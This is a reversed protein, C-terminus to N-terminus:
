SAIHQQSFTKDEGIKKHPNFINEPDFIQKAEKFLSYVEEGYMEPLYPTRLLGDNHEGTNSGHFSWVLQYVKESLEEITPKFTPDTPDMLPIIHFNGDGMHGAITYTLPYQDLIANLKPLFEPLVEPKVVLDDIFPATRLKGLRQRLLAFSERRVVWYKDADAKSTTIRTKLYFSAIAEQGARAKAAVEEENKGTYEVMLILKPVGGTLVAFFEPLLRFGLTFLNGGLRKLLQPFLKLAIRFTHDDYSEMSEPETERLTTVLDGLLKTDKLFIVLLKSAQEPQVLGFTTETIIGLTGQSGVILRTPDFTDQEKDWVDWLAYGSSNKSVDPKAKQLVEYNDVVLRELKQYLKGEFDGQAKKAELESRSFKKFVYEKGDSLVMKLSRVYDATKGWRLTKEGGSNNAVMGGVTCLERSAPYSPLIRNRKKTEKDFDRYYVGPETTATEDTVEKMRNFHPTMDVVVSDSLPGGTMDTGASRATLSIDKGGEKVKAVFNVLAEVDQSDKPAVVLSPKVSFLSTDKSCREIAEKDDFVEGKILNSFRAKLDSM